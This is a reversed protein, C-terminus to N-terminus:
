VNIISPYPSAMTTDNVFITNTNVFTRSWTGLTYTFVATGLDSAGDQLKFTAAITQGNTGSATFSFPRSVLPGGVVLRGGVGLGAKIIQAPQVRRPSAM